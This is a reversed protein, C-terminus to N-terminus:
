CPWPYLNIIEPTRTRDELYAQPQTTDLALLGFDLFPFTVPALVQSLPGRRLSSPRATDISPSYRLISFDVTPHMLRFVSHPLCCRRRGLRQSPRHARLPSCLLNHCGPLMARTLAPKEGAGLPYVFIGQRPWGSIPLKRSPLYHFYWGHNSCRGAPASREFNVMSAVAPAKQSSTASANGCISAPCLQLHNFDAGSTLSCYAEPPFRLRAFNRLVVRSGPCPSRSDRSSM